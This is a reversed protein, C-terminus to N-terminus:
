CFMELEEHMMYVVIQIKDNQLWKILIKYMMYCKQMKKFYKSKKMADANTSASVIGPCFGPVSIAMHIM